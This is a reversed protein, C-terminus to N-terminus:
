GCTIVSLDGQPVEPSSQGFFPAYASPWHQSWAQNLGIGVGGMDEITPPPGGEVFNGSADRVPRTRLIFITHPQRTYGDTLASTDPPTADQNDFRQYESRTLLLSGIYTQGTPCV